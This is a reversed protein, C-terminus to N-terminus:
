RRSLVVPLDWGFGADRNKVSLQNGSVSVGVIGDPTQISWADGSGEWDRPKHGPGFVCFLPLLACRDGPTSVRIHSGGSAHRERQISTLQRDGLSVVRSALQINTQGRVLFRGDATPQSSDVPHWRLSIEGSKDLTATDLVVVIGPNLHM